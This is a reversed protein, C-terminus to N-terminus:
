TKVRTPIDGVFREYTVFVAGDKLTVPLLDLGRPSPGALVRGDEGSFRSGHCPCLFIRQPADFGVACGLHPCIDSFALVAGSKQRVLWCAGVPALDTRDWADRLVARVDRKQPLGLPLDKVPGYSRPSNGGTVTRRGLPGFFAVTIPAAIGAGFLAALGFFLREFLQRRGQVPAPTEASPAPM